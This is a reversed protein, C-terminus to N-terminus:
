TTGATTLSTAPLNRRRQMATSRQGAAESTTHCPMSSVKLAVTQLHLVNLRKNSAPFVAACVNCLNL